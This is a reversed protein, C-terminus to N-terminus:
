AGIAVGTNNIILEDLFLTGPGTGADIGSVGGWNIFALSAFRDYNDKATVSAVPSAVSDIYLDLSGDAAIDTSARQLYIEIWHPADTITVWSSNNTAAADDILTVQIQYNGGNMRMQITAISSSAANYCYMLYFADGATMPLTNPDIYFRLRMKGTTSNLSETTNNGVVGYDATTDDILVNLGYATGHLAAAASVSLDAGSTSTFQTTDNTELDVKALHPLLTPNFPLSFKNEADTLLRRRSPSFAQVNILNATPRVSVLRIYPVGYSFDSRIQYNCMAQPIPHGWLNNDIRYTQAGDIAHACGVYIVNNNHKLIDAWIHAVATDYYAAGAYRILSHTFVLAPTTPHDKLVNDAWALVAARIPNSYEINLILYAVSNVTITFWSNDAHNAEYFGGNFWAHAPTYRTQPYDTDFEARTRATIDTYDHNGIGVFYPIETADLLDWAAKAVAWQAAVTPDTVSDGNGIVAVINQAAANDVLWQTIASFEWNYPAYNTVDQMDPIIAITFEGTANYITPVEPGKKALTAMEGATLVANWLGVYGVAGQWYASGATTNRGILTKTNDLNGSLELTGAADTSVLVGELYYNTAGGVSDWTIGICFPANIDLGSTARDGMMITRTHSTGQAKHYLVVTYQTTEKFIHIYNNSDIHLTIAYRQTTDLWVAAAEELWIVLSGAVKPLGTNLSASYVNIHGSTGDSTWVRKGNLRYNALSGGSYAGNRLNGSQDAAVTGGTENLPWVAVQASSQVSKMLTLYSDKGGGSAMGLLWKQKRTLPM